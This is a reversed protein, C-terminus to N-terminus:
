YLPIIHHNQKFENAFANNIKLPLVVVLREVDKRKVESTADVKVKVEVCVCLGM